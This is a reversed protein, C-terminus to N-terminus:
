FMVSLQAAVMSPKDYHEAPGDHAVEDHQYVLKALAERSFRYGIGGEIRTVNADWTRDM